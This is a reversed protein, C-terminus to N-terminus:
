RSMRMAMKVQEGSYKRSSKRKRRRSRGAKRMAIAISQKQPRGSHMLERINDSVTKDSSGKDLPM